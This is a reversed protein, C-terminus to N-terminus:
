RTQLAAVVCGNGSLGSVSGGMTEVLATHAGAIQRAGAAGTLQWYLEALQALGTAGLPHGRSLLGGSPNIPIDGTCLTHGDRSFSAGEGLKCFGLAEITVIEGITFADHVEAVDVDGISIGALRLAKHATREILEFNWVRDDNALPWWRGSELVSSLVRVASRAPDVLEGAQVVAAAAGDSVPSCQLITLPDAIPKSALVQDITYDGRYQARENGLANRHNKVSIWALDEPTVGYLHAYRQASMAYIGPLLMGSLAEVDNPDTPLPGKIWNSMKEFGVALVTRSRGTRIEECALHFALTGSACANEVTMIPVGSFGAARLCRHATGGYAFVTGVYVADIGAPTVGAASLAENVAQVVLEEVALDQKGFRSTGVGSIVPTPSM